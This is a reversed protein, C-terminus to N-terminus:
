VGSKIAEDTIELGRDIVEIGERLQDETICLPPNCFFANWRVFTFLGNDRFFAGLKSMPGLEGPSANFPVLPERTTRDKVLEVISFLGIYRVDGVSPHRAKLGELEEGLVRGMRRANEILGDEEYVKIAAVAAACSLPHAGYTLGSALVNHQYHEAIADNVLVAGLPLYASTLGKAVTMIDPVVNWHNVAFWEGTRGFGSMVEDCILLIGHRDCLSRLGQMYGDPPIIIGNTGVVSEVLIAAVNSPGEYQIVEEVHNLCDLTCAPLQRCFSCRYRHPDLVRVIGPLGPEAAWRRPEGTLSAAGGTAGHYSRYRTVIKQRGTVSRAMRIAHEDSEAGGTTFFAHNLDGPTIRALAEGLRARPETALAPHVYALAAAQEQIARVVREDGHGINVCMLQSNFDLYRKGDADWFYVGKARVVPIPNVDAQASWEFLTHQKCLAVIEEGSMTAQAFPQM